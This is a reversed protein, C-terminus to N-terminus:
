QIMHLVTEPLKTRSITIINVQGIAGKTKYIYEIYEIM